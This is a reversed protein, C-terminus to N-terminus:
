LLLGLESHDRMVERVDTISEESVGTWGCKKNEERYSRHSSPMQVYLLRSGLALCM